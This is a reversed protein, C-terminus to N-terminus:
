FSKFIGASVLLEEAAEHPGGSFPSTPDIALVATEPPKLAKEISRLRPDGDEAWSIV